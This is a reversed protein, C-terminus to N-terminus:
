SLAALSQGSPLTTLQSPARGNTPRTSRGMKSAALLSATIMGMWSATRPVSLTTSGYGSRVGSTSRALTRKM